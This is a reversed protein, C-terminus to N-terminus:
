RREIEKTGVKDANRWNENIDYYTYKKVGNDYDYQDVNGLEIMEKDTLMRPIEFDVSGWYEDYGDDILITYRIICVIKGNSKEIDVGNVEMKENFDVPRYKLEKKANQIKEVLNM